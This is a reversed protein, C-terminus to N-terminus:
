EPPRPAPRPELTRLVAASRTQMAADPRMGSAIDREIATRLTAFQADPAGREVLTEISSLAVDTSVHRAVLDALVTFPM